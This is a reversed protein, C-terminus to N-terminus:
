GLGILARPLDRDIVLAAEFSQRAPGARGYTAHLEGLVCHALAAEGPAATPLVRMVAAVLEETAAPKAKAESPPALGAREAELLVIPAGAHEPELALVQRAAHTAEPLHGLGLEARAVGFA